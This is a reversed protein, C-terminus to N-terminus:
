ISLVSSIACVFLTILVICFIPMKLHMPASFCLIRLFLASQEILAQKHLFIASLPQSLTLFLATFLGGLAIGDITGFKMVKHLRATENAGYCYGIMPAIGQSLGVSLM